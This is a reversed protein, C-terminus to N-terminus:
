ISPSSGDQGKCKNRSRRRAFRWYALCALFVTWALMAVVQRPASLRAAQAVNLIFAMGMFFWAGYVIAFKQLGTLHDLKAATNVSRAWLWAFAIWIAAVVLPEVLDDFGLRRMAYIWPGLAFAANTKGIRNPTFGIQALM